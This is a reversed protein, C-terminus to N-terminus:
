APVPSPEASPLPPNVTAVAGPVGRGAVQAMLWRVTSGVAIGAVIVGWRLQRPREPGGFM